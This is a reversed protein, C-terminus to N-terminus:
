TYYKTKEFFTAYFMRFFQWSYEGKEEEIGQLIFSYILLLTQLNGDWLIYKTALVTCMEM